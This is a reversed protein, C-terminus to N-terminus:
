APEQFLTAAMMSPTMSVIPLKAMASTVPASRAAAPIRSGASSSDMSLRKPIM